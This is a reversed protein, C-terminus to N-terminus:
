AHWLKWWKRNAIREKLSNVESILYENEKSLKEVKNRLDTNEQVSRRTGRYFYTEGGQWTGLYIQMHYRVFHKTLIEDLKKQANNLTEFQQPTLVIEKYNNAM